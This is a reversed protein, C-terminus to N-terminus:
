LFKKQNVTVVAQSKHKQNRMSGKAADRSPGMEREM